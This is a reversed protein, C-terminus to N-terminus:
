SQERLSRRIRERAEPPLPQPPVLNNDSSKAITNLFQIQSGYARCWKCLALHIRLALRETLDSSYM